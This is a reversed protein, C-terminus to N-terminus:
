LALPFHVGTLLSHIPGCSLLQHSLGHSLLSPSVHMSNMPTSHVFMVHEYIIWKQVSSDM